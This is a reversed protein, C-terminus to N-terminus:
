KPLVTTLTAFTLFKSNKNNKEEYYHRRLGTKSSTAISRRCLFCSEPYEHHRRLLSKTGDKRQVCDGQELLKWAWIWSVCMQHPPLKQQKWKTMQESTSWYVKSYGSTAMSNKGRQTTALLSLGGFGFATIEFLTWCLLLYGRFWNRDRDLIKSLCNWNRQVFVLLHIIRISHQLTM